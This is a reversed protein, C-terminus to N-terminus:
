LFTIVVQLLPLVGILCLMSACWCANALDIDLDYLSPPILAIFAVPMSSLVLVVKLPMGDMIEGYGLVSAASLALIPMCLFKIVAVAACERLYHRLRTFRMALGISILMFFSGFPVLVMNLGAFFLPRAVGSINLIGGALISSLAVLIFPDKVVQLFGNKIGGARREGEAFSRALPFGFAYYIIEEFLKYAPVLAFAAEGLFTYCVMAGIAGINSFSGCCFFAGAQRPSLNLLRAAFLALAGGTLFVGAGLFPMGILQVDNLSLNWIAGFFSLPLIWLLAAKQLFLRIHSLEVSLRLSGGEVAM